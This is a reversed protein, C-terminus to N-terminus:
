VLSELLTKEKVVRYLQYVDPSMYLSRLNSVLQYYGENKFMDLEKEESSFGISHTYYREVEVVDGFRGIYNEYVSASFCCSGILSRDLGDICKYLYQPCPKSGSWLVFLGTETLILNQRLYARTRKLYFRKYNGYISFILCVTSCYFISVIFRFLNRITCVLTEFFTAADPEYHYANDIQLAYCLSTNKLESEKNDSSLQILLINSLEFQESKRDYKEFKSLLYERQEERSKNTNGM